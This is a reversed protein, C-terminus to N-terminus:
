LQDEPIRGQEQLQKVTRDPINAISGKKLLKCHYVRTHAPWTELITDYSILIRDGTQLDDFITNKGSQNLMVIPTGNDNVIMYQDNKILLFYGEMTPKTNSTLLAVGLVAGCVIIASVISIGVRRRM